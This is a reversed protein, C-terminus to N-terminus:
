KNITNSVDAILLIKINWYAEAKASCIKASQTDGSKTFIKNQEESESILKNIHKLVLFKNNKIEEKQELLLNILEKKKMKKYTNEM